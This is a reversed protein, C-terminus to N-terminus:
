GEFYRMVPLQSGTYGPLQKQTNKLTLVAKLKGDISAIEQIKPFPDQPCADQALALGPPLLTTLSLGSVAALSRTVFERRTAGHRTRSNQKQKQNLKKRAM